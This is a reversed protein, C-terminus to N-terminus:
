VGAPQYNDPLIGARCDRGTGHGGKFRGGLGAM